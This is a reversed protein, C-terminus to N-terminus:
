MTWGTALRLKAWYCKRNKIKISSCGITTHATMILVYRRTRGTNVVIVTEMANAPANAWGSSPKIPAKVLDYKGGINDDEGGKEGIIQNREAPMTPKFELEQIDETVFCEAGSDNNDHPIFQVPFDGARCDIFKEYDVKNALFPHVGSSDIMITNSNRPPWSTPWGYVIVKKGEEAFTDWAYDVKCLTSNFGLSLKSLEDGRKHNWFDTIGHTGPWAGTALTCWSPPTYAPLVGMMGMDKTTTGRALFKQFNPLKGEALLKRTYLPDMGDIGVMMVKKAAGFGKQMM